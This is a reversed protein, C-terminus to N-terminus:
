MMTYTLINLLTVIPETNPGFTIMHQPTTHTTPFLRNLADYIFSEGNKETTM